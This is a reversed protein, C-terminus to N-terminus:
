HFFGCPLIQRSGYLFIFIDCWNDCVWLTVGIVRNEKESVANLTYKTKSKQRKTMKWYYHLQGMMWLKPVKILTSFYMEGHKWRLLVLEYFFKSIFSISACQFLGYYWINMVWLPIRMGFVLFLMLLKTCSSIPKTPTRYGGQVCSLNFFGVKSFHGRGRQWVSM